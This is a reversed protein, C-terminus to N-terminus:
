NIVGWKNNSDLIKYYETENTSYVEYQGIIRENGLKDILILTKM